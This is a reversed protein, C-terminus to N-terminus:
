QLVEDRRWRVNRGGIRVPRPFPDSARLMRNYSSPESLSTLDEVDASRRLKPQIM